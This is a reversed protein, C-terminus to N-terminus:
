VWHWDKSRRCFCATGIWEMPLLAQVYSDLVGLLGTLGDYNLEDFGIILGEELVEGLM